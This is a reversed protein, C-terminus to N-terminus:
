VACRTPSRRERKRIEIHFVRRWFIELPNAVHIDTKM